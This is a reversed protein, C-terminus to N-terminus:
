KRYYQSNTYGSYVEAMDTFDTLYTVANDQTGYTLTGYATEVGAYAYRTYDSFSTNSLSTLLESELEINVLQRLLMM